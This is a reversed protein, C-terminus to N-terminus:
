GPLPRSSGSHALTSRRVSPMAPRAIEVMIVADAVVVHDSDLVVWRSPM